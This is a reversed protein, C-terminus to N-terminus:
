HRCPKPYPRAVRESRSKLEVIEVRVRRRAMLKREPSLWRRAIEPDPVGWSLWDGNRSHMMRSAFFELHYRFVASWRYVASIETLYATYQMAAAQFASRAGSELPVAPALILFFNELPVTTSDPTKYEPRSRPHKVRPDLLYLHEPKFRLSQVQQIIREDLRPFARRPEFAIRGGRKTFSKPLPGTHEPLKLHVRARCPALSISTPLGSVRTPLVNMHLDNPNHLSNLIDRTVPSFFKPHLPDPHRTASTSALIRAPAGASNTPKVTEPLSPQSQSQGMPTSATLYPSLTLCYAQHSTSRPTCLPSSNSYYKHALNM